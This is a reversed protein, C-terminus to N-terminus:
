ISMLEKRYQRMEDCTTYKFCKKGMDIKKNLITCNYKESEVRHKVGYIDLIYSVNNGVDPFFVCKSDCKRCM